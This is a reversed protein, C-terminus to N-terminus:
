KKQLAQLRESNELVKNYIEMAEEESQAPYVLIATGEEEVNPIVVQDESLELQFIMFKLEPDIFYEVGLSESVSSNMDGSGTQFYNDGNMQTCWLTGTEEEGVALPDKGNFWVNGLIFDNHNKFIFHHKDIQFKVDVTQATKSDDLFLLYGTGEGSHLTDKSYRYNRIVFEAAAILLILLVVIGIRTLIKKEKMLVEKAFHIM